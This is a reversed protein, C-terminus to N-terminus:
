KSLNRFLTVRRNYISGLVLDKLGDGDTDGLDASVAGRVGPFRLISSFGGKGDGVLIRFDGKEVTAVLVDAFGDGNMDRALLASPQEGAAVKSLSFRFGQEHLLLTVASGGLNSVVLDTRGDGNFDATRIYNPLAAVPIQAAEKVTGDGKGQFFVLRSAKFRSLVLDGKGDGDFDGAALGLPGDPVEIKQLPTFAMGKGGKLLTLANGGYDAAALEPLGDGDLDQALVEFPGLGAQFPPKERPPLLTYRGTGPLRKLVRVGDDLAVAIDELGDGDFDGRVLNGAMKGVDFVPGAQFGGEKKAMYFHVKGSKRDSVVLDALGDRDLDTSVVFYPQALDSGYCRGGVLDGATGRYLSLAGSLGAGVLLDAKGDGTFDGIRATWPLGTVPLAGTERFAGTGDGKLVLVIGEDTVPVALDLNGDGDLDGASVASGAGSLASSEPNPLFGRSGGLIAYVKKEGPSVAGLDLWGDGNLDAAALGTFSKGSLLLSSSPTGAFSYIRVEAASADALAAEAAGDKDFDAAALALPESGAPLKVVLAKAFSGKGDGKWFLLEESGADAALLDLNKDGDLDAAELAVPGKGTSLELPKAPFAGKGDGFFVSVKRDQVRLVALDLAGDGDFDGKVLDLPSGPASLTAGAKEDYLGKGQGPLIRVTGTVTHSVALDLVGDGDFDGAVVGMPGEGGTPIEQRVSFALNKLFGVPAGGGGGGGSRHCAAAPLLLAGAGLLSLFSRFPSFKHRMTIRRTEM